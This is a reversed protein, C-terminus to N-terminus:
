MEPEGARESGGDGTEAAGSRALEEAAAGGTEGGERRAVERAEAEVAEASAGAHFDAASVWSGKPIVLVHVPAQPAIDHFALAHADEAVKKAPIEGRLIRAFINGEDYPPLGTMQM